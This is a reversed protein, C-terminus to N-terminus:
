CYLRCKSGCCPGSRLSETCASGQRRRPGVQGGCVKPQSQPPSLSPARASTPTDVTQGERHGDTPGWAGQVTHPPEKLGVPQGPCSPGEGSWGGVRRIQPPLSNQVGDDVQSPSLSSQLTFLEAWWGQHGEPGGGAQPQPKNPPLPQAPPPTPGLVEALLAPEAQGESPGCCRGPEWDQLGWWAGAGYTGGPLHVLSRDDLHTRGHGM